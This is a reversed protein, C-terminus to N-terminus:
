TRARRGDDVHQLDPGADREVGEIREHQIPRSVPVVAHSAEALGVKSAPSEDLWSGFALDAASGSQVLSASLLSLLIAQCCCTVSTSALASLNQARADSRMAPMARDVDSAYTVTFAHQNLTRNRLRVSKAFGQYPALPLFIHHPIAETEVHSVEECGKESISSAGDAPSDTELAGHIRVATWDDVEGFRVHGSERLIAGDVGDVEALCARMVAAARGVERCSPTARLALADGTASAETTALGAATLGETELV